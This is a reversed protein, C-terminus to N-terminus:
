LRAKKEELKRQYFAAKEQDGLKGFAQYLVVQLDPRGEVKSAIPELIQVAEAWRGHKAFLKGSLEVLEQDKPNLRLAAQMLGQSFDSTAARWACVALHAALRPEQHLALQLHSDAEAIRNARLSAFALLLHCIAPGQGQALVAEIEQTPSNLSLMSDVLDLSAPFHRLAQALTDLRSGLDGEEEFDKSWLVCIESAARALDNGPLDKSMGKRLISLADPYGGLMATAVAFDLVDQLKSPHTERWLAVVAQAEVLAEERHGLRLHLRARALRVSSSPNVVQEWLRVAQDWHEESAHFEALAQRSPDGEPDDSKFSAVASELAEQARGRSNPALPQELFLQARWLYAPAFNLENTLRSLLADRQSLRNLRDSVIAFEYLLSPDSPKDRALRAYYVAASEYNKAIASTKARYLYQRLLAEKSSMRSWALTALLVSAGLLAPVGWAFAKWERSALWDRFFTGLGWKAEKADDPSCLLSVRWLLYAPFRTIKYFWFSARSRPAYDFIRHEAYPNDM